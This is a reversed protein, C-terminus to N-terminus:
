RGPGFARWAFRLVPIFFAALTVRLATTLSGDLCTRTFDPRLELSVSAPLPSAYQLPMLLGCLRGTEAPDCLGYEADIHLETLHIRHLIEKILSAVAPVVTGHARKRRPRKRHKPRAPEPSPETVAGIRPGKFLTLRPALGALARIEVRYAFHPSTTLHVRILAPTIVALAVLILLAVFLWLTIALLLAM